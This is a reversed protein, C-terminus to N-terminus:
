IREEQITLLQPTLDPLVTYNSQICLSANQLGAKISEELTGGELWTYMVAASFADGAGTVDQVNKIPSTEYLVIGQDTSGVMVGREGWTVTVYSIGLELWRKVANKWQEYTEIELNFYAASEEVNTMIWTLNSLDKPLREMKPISVTVFALPTQNNEAKQLLYTLGEKPCNLDAIICSAQRLKKEHTSLIPPLIYDYVEMDAFAVIMEGEPNLVATYTGTSATSIHLVSDLQIASSAREIIGWDADKGAATILSPQYGLRGLNEAINRAVGGVSYSSQVPNSTHLQFSDLSHFKRDVNAGGICIVQKSDNLVYARGRLIDKQVLSSILNAVTSRSLALSSSLDQQSIYPNKVILEYVQRERETMKAICM